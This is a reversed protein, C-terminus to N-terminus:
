DTQRIQQVCWATLDSLLEDDVPRDLPFRITGKSVHLGELRAAFIRIAEAGPYIGIHRKAAGFHILNQEDLRYTPNQWAILEDAEPAAQRIIRRVQELLPRIENKQNAIYSDVTDM